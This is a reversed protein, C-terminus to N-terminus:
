NQRDEKNQISIIWDAMTQLVLKLNGFQCHNEAHEAKTFIRGTFSRVSVLKKAQKHYTKLECFHDKAGALLLFDQKVLHSIKKMSFKKLTKFYAYPSSAGMVHMGHDVGWFIYADIKMMIKVCFNLVPALKLAMMIDIFAALVLGRRTSVVRYFDYMAGWAIVRKIRGEYVAARPALYGGLSLGILTVDDLGFRDLVAKVPKEWKLTMPLKSKLLVEGQGPGEFYYTDFGNDAFFLLVPVLEEKYCDFGGTIVVAGKSATNKHKAYWVPLSVNEYPITYEEIINKEFCEIYSERFLSVLKDFIVPKEPADYPMFFDAARLACTERLKEGASNYKAALALFERKWDCLTKINRAADAIHEKPINGFTMWRNMQYNFNPEDHFKYTGASFKFEM